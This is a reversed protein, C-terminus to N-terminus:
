FGVRPGTGTWGCKICNYRVTTPYGIEQPKLYGNCGTKGCRFGMWGCGSCVYTNIYPSVPSGERENLSGNCKPCLQPGYQSALEEMKPGSKPIAEPSTAPLPTSMDVRARCFRCIKAEAKIMKGCAPCPKTVGSASAKIVAPKPKATPEPKPVPPKAPATLMRSEFHVDAAEHGCEQCRGDSVTVIKHCNLCYGKAKVEFTARCFRCIRAESKITEGCAPCAKTDGSIIQPRSDTVAAASIKGGRSVILPAAAPLPTGMPLGPMPPTSTSAPLPEADTAGTKRGVFWWFGFSVAMFAVAAILLVLVNGEQIASALQGRPNILTHFFLFTVAALAALWLWRNKRKLAQGFGGPFGLTQVFTNELAVAFVVLLFAELGGILDALFRPLSIQLLLSTAITPIWFVVIIVVFTIASIKLLRNKTNSDFTGEEAHLAEPTGFMLGPVVSFLRSSATSVVALLLNTPRVTLDADLGWRRLALWQLIDDAIGVIGYAITMQVFLVIGTLSFPNWNHELLSFVLGYFLVVGALKVLDLLGPQRLHSGIGQGMKQQLGAAWALPEFKKRLVEENEALTRTFLEAAIAFPLMILAALFINAGIVEPKASLDLPAPIHTTLEPALPGAARFTEGEGGGVVAAVRGDLIRAVQLAGISPQKGDLYMVAVEEVVTQRRIVIYDMRLKVSGSPVTMTVGFSLDGFNRSGALESIEGTGLSSQFAENLGDTNSLERDVAAQDAPSLPAILGTLIFQLNQPDSVIYGAVNQLTANSTKSLSSQFSKLLGEMSSLQKGELPAFGAPLDNLNIIAKSLDPGQRAPQFLDQASVPQAFALLFVGGLLALTGLVIPLWIRSRDM